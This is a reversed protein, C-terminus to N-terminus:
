CTKDLYNKYTLSDTYAAVEKIIAKHVDVLESAMPLGDIGEKATKYLYRLDKTEGVKAWNWLPLFEFGRYVLTFDFSNKKHQIGQLTSDTGTKTDISSINKKQKM